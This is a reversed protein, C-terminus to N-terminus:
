AREKFPSGEAHAQGCRPCVWAKDGESWEMCEDACGCSTCSEPETVELGHTAAFDLPDGWCEGRPLSCGPDPCLTMGRPIDTM